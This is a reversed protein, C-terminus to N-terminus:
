SKAPEGAPTPTAATASAGADGSPEDASEEEPKGEVVEVYAARTLRLAEGLLHTEEPTLNGRTKMEIMELQDIFLQAAELNVDSTAGTHPNAIRGLFMLSMQTHGTVLQTFLANIRDCECEHVDGAPTPTESM